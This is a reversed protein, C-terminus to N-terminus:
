IACPHRYLPCKRASMLSQLLSSLRPRAVEIGQVVIWDLKGTRSLVVGDSRESRLCSLTTVRMRGSVSRQHRRWALREM